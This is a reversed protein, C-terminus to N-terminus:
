IKSNIILKESFMADLAARTMKNILILNAKKHLAIPNNQIRKILNNYM